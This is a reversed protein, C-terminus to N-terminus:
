IINEYQSQRIIVKFCKIIINCIYLNYIKIKIKKKYYVGESSLKNDVRFYM